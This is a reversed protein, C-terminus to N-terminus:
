LANFNFEFLTNCFDYLHLGARNSPLRVAERTPVLKGGVSSWREGTTPRPPRM